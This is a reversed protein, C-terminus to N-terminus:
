LNNYIGCIVKAAKELGMNGINLTVDYTSPLDWDKKAFYEFYKARRHDVKEMQEEAERESFSSRELIFKLRQEQTATAFISIADVDEVEKLYAGACRGMVVFDEKKALETLIQKELDYIIDAAPSEREVHENGETYLKYFMKNPAKEDSEEFIKEFKSKDLDGYKIAMSLLQEDYFKIGLEDAVMKGVVAGGSGHRRNICIVKHAM